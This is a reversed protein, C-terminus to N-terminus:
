PGRGGNRAAALSQELRLVPGLWREDIELRELNAEQRMLRVEGRLAEVTAGYWAHLPAVLEREVDVRDAILAEYIPELALDLRPLKRAFFHDVRGGLLFGRAFAVYRAYVQQRLLALRETVLRTLPEARPAGPAAAAATRALRESLARVARELRETMRRHSDETMGELGELLLEVLFDRDADSARHEGLVWRRPRVFDLVEEAGRHYVARSADELSRREEAIVTQPLLSSVEPLLAETRELARDAAQLEEGVLREAQHLVAELRRECAERKIARSRAFLREELFRRLEPFQSRALAEGDGPGMALLAMRASVPLIAETLDAFNRELHKQVQGLEEASLQDVKNIVGVTKLRHQRILELAQEETRKGAQHAAFLWVVADAQALYERTTQEHEEMMSNLGPTDVVNVRLLEESPYLIEVWRIASARDRDLGSLFSAVESWELLQERDDRWVVRGARRAGYKLVNITATTPTVGMPAVTEGILANVFTSKGSSFEGMVTVLLPRDFVEQIRAAEVSLGTLVPHTLLLAHTRRMLPYLDVVGAGRALEGRDAGASLAAYARGLLGRARGSEPELRLAARLSTAAAELEALSLHLLGLGLRGAFTERAELSRSLLDRAEAPRELSSIARAALGQPDEPSLALLRAADEGLGPAVEQELELSVVRRHLDVARDVWEARPELPLLAQATRFCSLAAEADHVEAHVRGLLAHVEFDRPAVELARLLEQRAEETRGLALYARALASRGSVSRPEEELLRLASLRAEEPRGLDLLTQALALLVEPDPPAVTAARTLSVRALSLERARYQALGLRGVLRLDDRGTIAVAKRLERVARDVDGQALYIEGLGAFVQALLEEDAPALLAQKYTQLSAQLQGLRHQAEALAVLTAFSEPRLDRARSLATAAEALKGQRLLSLGLLQWARSSAPDEEIVSRLAAEAQDLAGAALAESGRRLKERLHDPGTLDDVLDGLRQGFRDFIGV